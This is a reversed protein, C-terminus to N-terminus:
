TRNQASNAMPLATHASPVRNGEWQNRLVPLSHALEKVYSSSETTIFNIYDENASEKKIFSISSPGGNAERRNLLQGSTLKDFPTAM